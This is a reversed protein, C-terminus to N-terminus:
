RRGRKRELYLNLVDIAFWAVIFAGAVYGVITLADHIDSLVM